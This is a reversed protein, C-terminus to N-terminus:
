AQRAHSSMLLLAAAVFVLAGIWYPAGPFIRDYAIGAFLPGLINMLSGLATTVGMLIGQEGPIVCNVTLTTMTPFTFGSMASSFISFPYIQWFIPTLFTALAGVAQM